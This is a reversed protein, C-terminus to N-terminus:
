SAPSTSDYRRTPRPARSRRVAGQAGQAPTYREVTREDEPEDEQSSPARTSRGTLAPRGPAASRPAYRGRRLTRHSPVASPGPRWRVGARAVEADGRDAADGDRHRATRSRAAVVAGLRLGAVVDHPYHVGVFVRSFAM